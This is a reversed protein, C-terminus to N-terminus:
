ARRRALWPMGRYSDAVVWAATTLAWSLVTESWQSPDKSGPRSSPYGCWCRLADGNGRGVVHGGPTCVCQLDGRCGGRPLRRRQLLGLVCRGAAVRAGAPATLSLYVFHSFPRVRDLALGYLVRALRMGNDGVAFPLRQRDADAAFWAYLVWAGAVMVATEVVLKIRGRSWRGTHRIFRVKFVLLWLLMYISCYAPPLSLRADASYAWAVHWPSSPASM